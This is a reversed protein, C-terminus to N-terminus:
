DTQKEAEARFTRIFSWAFKALTAAAEESAHISRLLNPQTELLIKLVAYADNTTDASPKDM